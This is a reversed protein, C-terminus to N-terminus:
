LGAERLIVARKAHAWLRGDLWALRAWRRRLDGKPVESFYTPMTKWEAWVKLLARRCRGPIMRWHRACMWEGPFRRSWRPCGAVCCTSREYTPHETM